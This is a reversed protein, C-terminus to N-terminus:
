PRSRREAVLADAPREDILLVAQLAEILGPIEADPATAAADLMREVWEQPDRSAPVLGLARDMGVHADPEVEDYRHQLFDIPDAINDHALKYRPM